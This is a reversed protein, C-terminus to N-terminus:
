PVERAVLALDRRCDECDECDEVCSVGSCPCRLCAGRLAEKVVALETAAAAAARVRQEIDHLLMSRLQRIVDKLAEEESATM